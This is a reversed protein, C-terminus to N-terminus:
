SNTPFGGNSLTTPLLLSLDPLTLLISFLFPRTRFVNAFVQLCLHFIGADLMETISFTM